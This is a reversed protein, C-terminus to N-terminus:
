SRLGFVGNAGSNSKKVVLDRSNGTPSTVFFICSVSCCASAAVAARRLRARRAMPCPRVPGVPTACVAWCCSCIRDALWNSRTASLRPSVLTLLRTDILDTSYQLLYIVRCWCSIYQEHEYHILYERMWLFIPLRVTVSGFKSLLWFTISWYYSSVRYTSTTLKLQLTQNMKTYVCITWNPPMIKKPILLLILM